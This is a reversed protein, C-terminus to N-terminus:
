KKLAYGLLATAGGLVAIGEAYKNGIMLYLVVSPLFFTIGVTSVPRVHFDNSFNRRINSIFEPMMSGVQLRAPRPGTQLSEERVQQQLFLKDQRNEACGNQRYWSRDVFQLFFM